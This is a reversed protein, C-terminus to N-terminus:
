MALLRASNEVLLTHVDEESLGARRLQPVFVQPLYSYTTREDASRAEQLPAALPLRRGRVFIATDRSIIIQKLYGREAMTKIMEICGAEPQLFRKGVRDYGLTAGRRAVALHLELDPASGLHGVIVRSLDAGEEAFIDLQLLALHGLDTHTIIAAGTRRSARAIARLAKEESPTLKEGITGAKIIGAQHSSGVMGQEIERVIFEAVADVDDTGVLSTLPPDCWFGTCAVIHLGTRRSLEALMEPNRENGYPTVDVLSQVGAARLDTLEEAAVEMVAAWDYGSFGAPREYANFVIHEHMLTAGLEQPAIRGLVTQVKVVNQRRHLMM